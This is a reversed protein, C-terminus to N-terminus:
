QFDVWQVAQQIHEIETINDFISRLAESKAPSRDVIKTLLSGANEGASGAREYMATADEKDATDDFGKNM